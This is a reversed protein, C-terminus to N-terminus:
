LGADRARTATFPGQDILARTADPTKKRAAAVRDVLNGYLGDLVSDLVERAAIKPDAAAKKLSQWIGTVTPPAKGGGLFEPLEVPPKEPIEGDLRLVLASNGAIVPPKERFRLAAFFLLIFSLFVLVVGTVLGIFFKAM